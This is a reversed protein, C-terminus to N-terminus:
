RKSRLQSKRSESITLQQRQSLMSIRLLLVKARASRFWVVVICLIADLAVTACRYTEWEMRMAGECGVRLVVGVRM